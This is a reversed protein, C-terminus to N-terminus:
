VLFKEKRDLIKILFDQAALAVNIYPEYFFLICIVLLVRKKLKGRMLMVIFHLARLRLM